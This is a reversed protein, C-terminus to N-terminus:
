PKVLLENYHPIRLLEERLESFLKFYKDEQGQSNPMHKLWDEFNDEVIFVRMMTASIPITGRGLILQNVKEIAQPRYWSMREEDNGYIMCDLSDEIDFYKAWMDVRDLVYDGWEPVHDNENTMDDIHAVFLKGEEIEKEFSARIVDMRTKCTFPNRVTFSEQSSGVLILVKECTLLAKGIMHVHGIHLHQFRGLIVGFNFAKTM